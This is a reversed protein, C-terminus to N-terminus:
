APRRRCRTPVPSSAGRFTNPDGGSWADLRYTGAPIREFEFRGNADSITEVLIISRESGALVLKANAVIGGAPDYVTGTLSAPSTQAAAIPITM